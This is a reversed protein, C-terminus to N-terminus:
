PTVELMEPVQLKTLRLLAQGGCFSWHFKFDSEELGDMHAEHNLRLCDDCMTTRAIFNPCDPDCWALTYETPEREQSM